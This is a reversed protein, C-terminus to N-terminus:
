LCKGFRLMYSQHHEGLEANSRDSKRPLLTFTKSVATMSSSPPVLIAVLPEFKSLINRLRSGLFHLPWRQRTDFSRKRFILEFKGVVNISGYM